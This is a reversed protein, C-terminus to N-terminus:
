VLTVEISIKCFRICYWIGTHKDKELIFIKFPYFSELLFSPLEQHVTIRNHIHAGISNHIHSKIIFAITTVPTTVLTFLGSRADHGIM